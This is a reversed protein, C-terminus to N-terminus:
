PAEEDVYILRSPRSRVRRTLAAVVLTGAVAAGGVTVLDVTPIGAVSSPLLVGVHTAFTLWQFSGAAEGFTVVVAASTPSALALSPTASVITSVGAASRATANSSTGMWELNQGSSNAVNTFMWGTTDSAALHESTPYMPSAGLTAQLHDGSAQWSWNSVTLAMTVVSLDVGLTDAYVPLVFDVRLGVSGLTSREASPSVLPATTTFALDYTEDDVSANAVTWVASSLNAVAAVSGDPRLESMGGLGATLGTGQQALASVNVTPQAGSFQCLVMSNHWAVADPSWAASAATAPTFLGFLLVVGLGVAAGVTLPGSRLWFRHTGRRRAAM